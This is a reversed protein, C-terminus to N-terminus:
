GKLEKAQTAKLLTQKQNTYLPLMVNALQPVWFFLKFTITTMLGWGLFIAGAIGFANPIITMAFSNNLNQNFEDGLKFITTLNNLSGDMLVIQATDTAISTAGSLSISVHAQKLAIADNIGDGIFCVSRGEDQLQKVLDAKNEPLTNAFYHDIGLEDAMRKTPTEHDGSIIYLTKGSKQLAQVIERTEPRITPQLEIAGGLQEDLAVYVLSHGDAHCRDQEAQIFDPIVIDCMTMFRASGIRVTRGGVDVTVGYGIEYHAHDIDPVDLQRDDAAQLIARAIPHTQRHEAAAAYTLLQDESLGDLSSFLRSVTPTEETLTGTKDFVVTDIEHLLELSQGDKILIGRESLLHLYNLMSMPGLLFMRYGPCCWLVGLASNLGIFPVCAASFLMLRPIVKDLFVEVRGKISLNFNATNNLVHGIQAATTEAGAQEVRVIIKGSIVITSAFVREGITKEAPQSEGTLRHQDISAIGNSITGDVPIMQGATVVLQDDLQINEFPVEVEAGDVVLWVSRPQEGFLNVLSDRSNNQTKSLLWRMINAYWIGLSMAFFQGAVFAGAITVTFMLDGTLRRDKIAQYSGKLFTTYLYSVGLMGPVFLPPYLTTGIVMFGISTTSIYLNRIVNKNRSIDSQSRDSQLQELQKDRNENTFPATLTTILARAQIKSNNFTQKLHRPSLPRFNDVSAVQQVLSLQRTPRWPRTEGLSNSSASVSSVAMVVTRRQKNDHRERKRKRFQVKSQSRASMWKRNYIM